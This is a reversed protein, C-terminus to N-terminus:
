THGPATAFVAEVYIEVERHCLGSFSLIKSLVCSLFSQGTNFWLMRLEAANLLGHTM